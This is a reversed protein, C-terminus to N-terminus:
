QRDLPGAGIRGTAGPVGQAWFYTPADEAAGDALFLSVLVMELLLSPGNGPV